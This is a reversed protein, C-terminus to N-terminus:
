ESVAQSLTIKLGDIKVNVTDIKCEVTHMREYLALSLKGNEAIADSAKNLALAFEKNAEMLDKERKASDKRILENSALLTTERINGNELLTKERLNGDARAQKSQLSTWYALVIVCAVPFGFSNILTTIDM